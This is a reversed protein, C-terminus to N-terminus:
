FLWRLFFFLGFACAFMIVWSFITSYDYIFQKRKRDWYFPLAQTWSSPNEIMFKTLGPAKSKMDHLFDHKTFKGSDHGLEHKLIEKYLSPYNTLRWNVEILSEDALEFRNAVGREVLEIWIPNTMYIAELVRLSLLM